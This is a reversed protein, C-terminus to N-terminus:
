EIDIGNAGAHERMTLLTRNLIQRVRETSLGIKEAIERYRQPPKDGLGYRSRVIYQERDTLSTLLSEIDGDIRKLLRERRNKGDYQDPATELAAEMGLAFRQRRRHSKPVYRHLCNRVAWTAYTSFRLGRTFDFLEASRILPPHGESILEDLRNSSDTLGKAISVVLRLNARVIQNRVDNADRLKAEIRDILSILPKEPSLSRRLMDARYKLFNMQRFLHFEQEPTLLPIRYLEALYPPTGPPISCESRTGPDVPLPSLIVEGIGPETFEESFIYELNLDNIEECRRLMAYTACRDTLSNVNLDALKQM